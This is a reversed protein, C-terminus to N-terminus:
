FFMYILTKRTFKKIRRNPQVDLISISNKGIEKKAAIFTHITPAILGLSLFFILIEFSVFFKEISTQTFYCILITALTGLFFGSITGLFSFIFRELTMAKLIQKKSMGLTQLIRWYNLNNEFNSTYSVHIIILCIVFVALYFILLTNKLNTFEKFIVEVGEYQNIFSIDNKRLNDIVYSVREKNHNLNLFIIESSNASYDGLDDKDMDIVVMPSQESIFNIRNSILAIKYDKENVAVKDKLNINFFDQANSNILLSDKLSTNDKDLKFLNNITAIDAYGLIINAEINNAKLFNAENSIYAKEIIENSNLELNKEFFNPETSIAILDANGNINWHNNIAHYLANQYTGIGAISVLIFFLIILMMGLNYNRHPYIKFRQKIFNLLM